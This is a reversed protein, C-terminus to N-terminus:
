SIIYDGLKMQVTGTAENRIREVDYGFTILLNELARVLLEYYKDADYDAPMQKPTYRHEPREAHANTIVYEVSEGPQKKLGYRELKEMVVKQVAASKYGEKERTVSKRIVLDDWAAEKNRLKKKYLRLIRMCEPISKLFEKKNRVQSLATIVEEQFNKVLMPADRRRMEIGRVKIEGSRFVGYYRNPVPAIMNSVSPSFVIWRYLGEVSLPISYERQIRAVLKKVDEDKIDKKKIWLSDVIGHLVEFGMDEAIKTSGLLIHRAYSTISEHSEIRGFRSRRYGTYGFSTVLVWKLASAMAKYKEDGTEKYKRKLEIRQRILPELVEPVLGRRKECIHYGSYPVKNKGACCECLVTEPSINYNVMIHPYLSVFDIEAVDTHFGVLPEYIFGGKDAYFLTRATKFDEVMNEKYPIPYGKKYATYIYLNTIVAGPSLRAVKQVPMCGIRALFFIGDLEGENYMFGSADIHYRGRFYHAPERRVIRGYSFYSKGERNVFGQLERSFSFPIMNAHFRYLLYEVAYKDGNVILVVDPDKEAYLQSFRQLIDEESGIIAHEDLTIRTVKCGYDILPDYQTSVEVRSTKLKIEEDALRRISYVLGDVMECELSCLPALGNEFLFMQEADLDANYLRFNYEGLKEIERVFSHMNELDPSYVCAAERLEDSPLDRVIVPNCAYGKSALLDIAKKNDQAQLYIKATYSSFCKETGQATKIWLAIMNGQPTCDLLIGKM